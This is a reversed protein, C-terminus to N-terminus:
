SLNLKLNLKIFMNLFFMDYKGFIDIMNFLFKYDVNLYCFCNIIIFYIIVSLVFYFLKDCVDFVYVLFRLNLM